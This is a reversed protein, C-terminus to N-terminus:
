NFKVQFKKTDVKKQTEILENIRLDRKEQDETPNELAAAEEMERRMDNYDQDTKGTISM